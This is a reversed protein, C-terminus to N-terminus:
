RTTVIVEKETIVLTHEAQAVKHESQEILRPYHHLIRADELRKLALLARTGFQRVLWRSCFPLTQYTTIIFTLLQRALPDRVAKQGVLAYIGSPKSDRVAGIGTTTFPEIAYVGQALLKEQANDYNPITIGAHITFREISHGSLNRITEVHRPGVTVVGKLADTAGRADLARASGLVGDKLIPHADHKQHQASAASAIAKGIDRLSTHPHALIHKVAAALASEAAAILRANEESNELDLSFATDAIFGDIHVGIDVKLLGQAKKEDNHTPTAHAAIDDISLNVPFAPKGGLKEIHAEISEAIELLPMGKKIFSRAFAVTQSAISGAQKLKSLEDPSM